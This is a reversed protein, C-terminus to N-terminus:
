RSVTFSLNKDHSFARSPGKTVHKEARRPAGQSDDIITFHKTYIWEGNYYYDWTYDGAPWHGADDGGWGSDRGYVRNGEELWTFDWTMTNEYDYYMSGPNYWRRTITIETPTKIKYDIIGVLYQTESAKINGEYSIVNGDKDWNQVEVGMIEFPIENNAPQTNGGTGSGGDKVTRVYCPTTINYPYSLIPREYTKIAEGSTYYCINYDTRSNFKIDFTTSSSWYYSDHFYIYGMGDSTPAQEPLFIQNGNPGTILLGNDVYELQCSNLEEAEAKTPLRGGNSRDSAASSASDYYASSYGMDWPSSADINTASWLCSLGLDVYGSKVPLDRTTLQKVNGTFSKDGIVLLPCYYVTTGPEVDLMISNGNESSMNFHLNGNQYHGYYYTIGDGGGTMVLEIGGSNSEVKTAQYLKNALAGSLDTANQSYVIGQHFVELNNLSSTNVHSAITAHRFTVEEADSTTMQGNFTADKTTFTGIEKAMYDFGDGWWDVCYYYTTNPKLDRITIEMTRRDVVTTLTSTKNLSNKSTGYVVGLNGYYNADALTYPNYENDFGNGYGKVRAYTMGTELVGGTVMVDTTNGAGMNANSGRNGGDDDGGDSGGCASFSLMMAAMLMLYYLRRM